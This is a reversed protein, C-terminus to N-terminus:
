LKVQTCNSLEALHSLQPVFLNFSVPRLDCLQETTSGPYSGLKSRQEMLGRGWPLQPTGACITETGDLALDNWGQSASNIGECSGTVCPNLMLEQGHM